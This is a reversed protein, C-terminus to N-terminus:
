ILTVIFFTCAGNLFNNSTDTSASPAGNGANAPQAGAPRAPPAPTLIPAPAPAPPPKSPPSSARRQMDALMTDPNVLARFEIEDAPILRAYLGDEGIDRETVALPAAFAPSALATLIALSAASRM